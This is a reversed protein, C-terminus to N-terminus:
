YPNLFKIRSYVTCFFMFTLIQILKPRVYRAVVLHIPRNISFLRLTKRYGPVIIKDM